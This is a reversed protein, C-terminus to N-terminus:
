PISVCKLIASDLSMLMEIYMIENLILVQKNKFMLREKSCSNLSYITLLGVWTRIRVQTCTSVSIRIIMKASKKTSQSMESNINTETVTNLM